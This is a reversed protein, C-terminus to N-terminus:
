PLHELIELVVTTNQCFPRSLCCLDLGSEPDERNVIRALMKHIGARFVLMKNSFLFLFTNFFKSWKDYHKSNGLINSVWYTYRSTGECCSRFSLALSSMIYLLNILALVFLNNPEQKAEKSILIDFCLFGM